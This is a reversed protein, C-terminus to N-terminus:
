PNLQIIAGKITVNGTAELDMNGSAKISLNQDAQIEIEGGGRIGIKRGNDDLSVTNGGATAIEVKGDDDDILVVHGGASEVRIQANSEDSFVIRHGVRTVFMRQVVKGDRIVESADAPPADVGNWLGAVVLPRSIDDQVFTVLVEDNVEPLCYLGRGDGAGVGAVRAWDSEIDGDLWPFKIKVRGMNDPDDNNTVIGTTVPWRTVPTASNSLLERMTGARRGSVRFHTVYDREVDWVHTVSTVRYRGNFRNGLASVEVLCGAKLAPVGTCLGEAEVFNGYRADLLAQALTDAEDQSRVMARVALGSAEGFREEALEGGSHPEGIEPATEGETAQGVIERKASIDWGKVQVESVQEGLSLTPRFSLLERGWELDVVEDSGDDSRKFCLTRDRVYFDYGISEAREQLFAMHSQGDEYVHEHVPSSPDVDARLGAGDAIEKAIDSDSMRVYSKTHTGRHLRHSRDYARVTLESVMDEGFNPEIGVIEGVFLSHDGRGQEDSVGVRIETGLDFPGDNVLRVGPDHLRLSCMDPLRLNGDVEVVYLHNMVEVPLSQGGIEVYLQRILARERPM